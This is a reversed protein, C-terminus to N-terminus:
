GEKGWSFKKLLVEGGASLQHKSFRCLLDRRGGHSEQLRGQRLFKLASSWSVSQCCRQLGKWTLM